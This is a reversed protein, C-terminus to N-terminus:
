PTVIVKIAKMEALRQFGELINSFSVKFDIMPSARIKNLSILEVTRKFDLMTYGYDGQIRIEKTTVDLMPIKMTKELLGAVTVIGGKKVIKIAQNVTEEKGVAEISVDVGKNSTLEMITKIIDDRKPNIMLDAGLEKAKQLRYDSLDAIVTKAAGLLKVAQLTFLGIPGAGIIAVYDGINIESIRAAHLGVAAPEACAAEEFSINESLKYCNEAPVIVYEAFSGDIHLGYLKYNSCINNRGSICQECRGCPIIPNVAIKDGVSFGTVNKGTKAVVGAFEHGMVLPLGHIEERRKSVGTFAHLESGCISAAKVEVLIENEKPLPDPWIEIRFDNGGYWNVVKM